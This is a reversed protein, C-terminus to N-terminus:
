RYLRPLKERCTPLFEPLALTPQGNLASTAERAGSATPDLANPLVDRALLDCISHGPLQRERAAVSPRFCTDAVVPLYVNIRSVFKYARPLRFSHLKLCTKELTAEDWLLRSFTM